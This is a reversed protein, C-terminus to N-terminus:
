HCLRREGAAVSVSQKSPRSISVLNSLLLTVAASLTVANKIV